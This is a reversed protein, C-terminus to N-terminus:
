YLHRAIKRPMLTIPPRDENKRGGEPPSGFKMNDKCDVGKRYLIEQESDGPMLRSAAEKPLPPTLRWPPTRPRRPPTRPAETLYNKKDLVKPKDQQRDKDPFERSCSSKPVATLKKSKKMHEASGPVLHAATTPLPKKVEKRGNHAMRASKTPVTRMHLAPLSSALPDVQKMCPLGAPPAPLIPVLRTTGNFKTFDYQKELDANDFVLDTPEAINYVETDSSSFQESTDDSLLVEAAFKLPAPPLHTYLHAFELREDLKDWDAIAFEKVDYSVSLSESAMLGYTSNFQCAAQKNLMSLACTDNIQTSGASLCTWAAWSAIAAIDNGKMTRSMSAM